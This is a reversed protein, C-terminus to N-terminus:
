LFAIRSLGFSNVIGVEGLKGAIEIAEVIRDSLTFWEGHLRDASFQKHLAREMEDMNTCAMLALTVVQVPCDTMMGSIRKEPRQTKGIKVRELGVALVFYVYGYPKKDICSVSKDPHEYFGIHVPCYGNDRAVMDCDSKKCKM